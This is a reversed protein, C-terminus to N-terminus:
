SGSYQEALGVPKPGPLLPDTGAHFTPFTQVRKRVGISECALLRPRTPRRRRMSRALNSNYFILHLRQTLHRSFSRIKAM